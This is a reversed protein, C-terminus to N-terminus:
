SWDITYLAQAHASAVQETTVQPVGLILTAIVSASTVHRNAIM